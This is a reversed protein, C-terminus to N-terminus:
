PPNNSAELVRPQPLRSPARVDPDVFSGYTIGTTPLLRVGWAVLRRGAGDGFGCEGAVAADAGGAVHAAGAVSRDAGDGCGSLESGGGSLQEDLAKQQM